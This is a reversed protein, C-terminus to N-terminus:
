LCPAVTLIMNRCTGAAIIAILMQTIISTVESIQSIRRWWTLASAARAAAGTPATVLVDKGEQLEQCAEIQFDDLEFDTRALFRGLPTQEREARGRFEAYAQAPSKAEADATAEAGASATDHDNRDGRRSM